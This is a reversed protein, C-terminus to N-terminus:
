TRDIRRGQVRNRARLRRQIDSTMGLGHGGLTHWEGMRWLSGGSGEGM